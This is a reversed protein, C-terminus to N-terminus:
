NPGFFPDRISKLNWAYMTVKIMGEMQVLRGRVQEELLEMM